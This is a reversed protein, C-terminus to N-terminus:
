STALRKLVDEYQNVSKEIAESFTNKKSPIEIGDSSSCIDNNTIIKDERAYAKIWAGQQRHCFQMIDIATLFGYQQWVREVFLHPCDGAAYSPRPIPRAGYEAFEKYVAPVVAGFKWAEIVDDFLIVGDRLATAYAFYVLKNLKMNTIFGDKAHMEIFTNAIDLAQM